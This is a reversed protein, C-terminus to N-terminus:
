KGEQRSHVRILIVLTVLRVILKFALFCPIRPDDYMWTDKKCGGEGGEESVEKKAGAMARM